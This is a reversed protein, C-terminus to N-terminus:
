RSQRAEPEANEIQLLSAAETRFRQLERDAPGHADMWELARAYWERAAAPEGLRWHNMAIFFWGFGSGGAGLQSSKQLADLSGTWNGNRYRAIGLTNWVAAEEPSGAVAREAFELARTEDRLERQATTSLFWAISNASAPTVTELNLAALVQRAEDIKGQQVLLRSLGMWSESLRTRYGRATPFDAALREFIEAAETLEGAAEDAHGNDILLLGFHLLADGLHERWLSADPQVALRRRRYAIASRGAEIAELTRGQRAYLFQQGQYCDALIQVQFPSEDVTRCRAIATSYEAHAEELRGRLRLLQGLYCHAYGASKAVRRPDAADKLVEVARRAHVEALEFKNELTLRLSFKAHNVSLENLWYPEEPLQAHLGELVKLVREIVSTSDGKGSVHYADYLSGYVRAMAIRLDVDNVKYQSLSEYLALADELVQVRVQEMQPVNALSVQGVRLLMRDVADLAKRFNAEALERQQAAERQEQQAQRESAQALLTQETAFQRQQRESAEARRAQEAARRAANREGIVWFTSAAFALTAVLLIATASWVLATHRRSWKAARQVFTPRRAEIPHNGLFRGLDAALDGASDYRDDRDKQMAKLVITELDKPIRPSLHRLAIPEESAIQQLLKQRDNGAFAPRLTLLEYLTVGLSYVDTRHDVVVRDNLAQEPSMYRLTGLVDGTMTLSADSEIRALGFDTVYVKGCGDLLLNAPKVDRHIVGNQHAHELADAVQRGLAAIRRYWGAGSSERDTSFAAIVTSTAPAFAPLEAQGAFSRPPNNGDAPLTSQHKRDRLTEVVEALTHGAIFEMAYHHVGRECGVGYVSVINPHRLQAAALAENRFRQLQRPDLVGAFPLVKLAVQRRLSIQEAEYVVGMGGRGIERVIRFDGLRRSEEEDVCFDPQDAAADPVCQRVAELMPLVQALIPALDPYRELYEDVLPQEGRNLRNTFEDAISGVFPEIQASGGSLDPM